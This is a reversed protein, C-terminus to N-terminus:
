SHAEHKIDSERESLAANWVIYCLSWVSALALLVVAVIDRM